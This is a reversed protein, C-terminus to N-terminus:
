YSVCLVGGRLASSDACQSDAGANSPIAMSGQVGREPPLGQLGRVHRLRESHAAGMTEHWKVEGIALLTERDDADYGFAAVDVQCTKRNGPDNVTGPEVRVPFGGTIEEAAFHRTWYRCLQAFHPGLVSWAFRRQSREWLPGASRAHALDSWIPRMVAHYAPHYLGM